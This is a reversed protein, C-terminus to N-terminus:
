LGPFCNSFMEEFLGVSPIEKSIEECQQTRTFENEVEFDCHNDIEETKEDFEFNFLDDFLNTYLKEHDKFVPTGWSGKDAVNNDLLCYPPQNPCIPAQISLDVIDAASGDTVLNEFNKGPQIPQNSSFFESELNLDLLSAAQSVPSSNVSSATTSSSEPIVDCDKPLTKANHLLLNTTTLISELSPKNSEVNKSTALTFLNKLSNFQTSLIELKSNLNQNDAEYVKLKKKLIETEETLTAHSIELEETRKRKRERSAVASHRNRMIRELKKAAREEATLNKGRRQKKIEVPKENKLISDM